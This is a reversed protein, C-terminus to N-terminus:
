TLRNARLFAHAVDAARRKDREVAANMRRM